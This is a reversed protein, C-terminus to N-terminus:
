FVDPFDDEFPTEDDSPMGDDEQGKRKGCIQVYDAVIRVASRKQGSKKDQWREQRLSGDVLVTQGKALRKRLSDAQNGWVVIDFFSAEDDWEGESVRVPRNTAISFSLVATGGATIAYSREGLDQSVRGAITVRNVDKM